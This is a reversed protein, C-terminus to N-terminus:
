ATGTVFFHQGDSGLQVELFISELSCKLATRFPQTKKHTIWIVRWPKPSHMPHDSARGEIGDVLHQACLLATTLGRSGLASLMHVGPWRQTNLAGVKPLRNVSACRVGVWAHLETGNEM